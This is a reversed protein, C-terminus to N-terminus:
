NKRTSEYQETIFKCDVEKFAEDFMEKIEDVPIFKSLGTSYHYNLGYACPEDIERMRVSWQFWYVIQYSYKSGGIEIEVAEGKNVHIKGCGCSWAECTKGLIRKELKFKLDTAALKAKELESNYTKM